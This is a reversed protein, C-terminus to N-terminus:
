GSLTIPKPNYNFQFYTKPDIMRGNEKLTITNIKLEGNKLKVTITYEFFVNETTITVLYHNLPHDIAMGEIIQYPSIYAPKTDNINITGIDFNHIINLDTKMEVIHSQLDFRFESGSRELKLYKLMGYGVIDTIQLHVKRLPYKKGANQIDFKILFLEKIEITPVLAKQVHLVLKPRSDGGTINDITTNQLDKIAENAKELENQLRIIETTAAITTDQKQITKDQNKIIAAYTDNREQEVKLARQRDKDKKWEQYYSGGIAALSGVLVFWFGVM